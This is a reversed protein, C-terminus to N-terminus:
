FTLVNVTFSVDEGLNTDDIDPFEKLFESAQDDIKIGTDVCISSEM